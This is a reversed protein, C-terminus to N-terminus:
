MWKRFGNLMLISRIIKTGRGPVQDPWDYSRVIEDGTIPDQFLWDAPCFHQRDSGVLRVIKNDPHWWFSPAVIGDHSARGLLGGWLSFTSNSIVLYRSSVLTLFDDNLSGGSSLKAEPDIESLHEQCWKRDDTVVVVPYRRPLHHLRRLRKIAARYYDLSCNLPPDFFRQVPNTKICDTRRIHITIQNRSKERKKLPFLIRLQDRIPELYKISQRYGDLSYTRGDSPVVIQDFNSTEPFNQDALVERRLPLKLNFLEYLPLKQITDPFVVRCRNQKATAVTAAIEFLQNGMRGMQGLGLYTITSPNEIEYGLSRAFEIEDSEPVSPVSKSQAPSQLMILLVLGILVLIILLLLFARPM